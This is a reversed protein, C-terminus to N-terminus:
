AESAHRQAEAESSAMAERLDDQYTQHGAVEQQQIQLQLENQQTAKEVHADEETGSRLM